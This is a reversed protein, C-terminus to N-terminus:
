KSPKDAKKDNKASSKTADTKSKAEKDKDAKKKALKMKEGKGEEKAPAPQTAAPKADKAPEVAQATLIGLSAILALLIKM